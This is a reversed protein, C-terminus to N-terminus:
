HLSAPGAPLTAGEGSPMTGAIVGVLTGRIGPVLYDLLCCAEPESKAEATARALQAIAKQHKAVVPANQHNGRAESELTAAFTILRDKWM